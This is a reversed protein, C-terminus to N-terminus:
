WGLEYAAGEKSSELYFRKSVKCFCLAIDEDQRGSWRNKFIDLIADCGYEKGASPNNKDKPRCRYLGFVNDARNVIEASGSIDLQTLRGETKRPHAVLHVHADFNHAFDKLKGVAQGQRRYFDRDNGTLTMTMLNDVLFVRCNFRRAAYEFVEILGDDTVSGFSDFVFFWSAYWNRIKAVVERRVKLIEKGKVPDYVAEWHAGQPGAAQREIWYRFLAAPLEGTYVCVRFGSKIATLMEQGLYTSKGVGSGGTWISMLGMGYGGTIENIPQISSPVRVMKEVDFAQVDALRTLGAM